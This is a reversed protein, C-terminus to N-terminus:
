EQPEASTEEIRKNFRWRFVLWYSVVLSPYLLIMWWIGVFPKGLVESLIPRCIICYLVAFLPLLIILWGNLVKKSPPALGIHMLLFMGTVILLFIVPSVWLIAEVAAFEVGPSDALM